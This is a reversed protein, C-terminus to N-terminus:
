SARPNPANGDLEVKLYLDALELEGEITELRLIGDEAGFEAYSWRNKGQRVYQEVRMAGQSVLVYEALSEIAQYHEFKLGRDYAETAPSLVEFIVGPNLLVDRREDVFRREGCVVSVDPYTFTDLSEVRVRMDSPYVYCDKAALQNGLLRVLNAVILDHRESAGAMAFMEGDLYESRYSAQREIDLYEEPSLRDQKRALM